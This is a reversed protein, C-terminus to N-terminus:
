IGGIDSSSPVVLSLCLSVRQGAGRMSMSLLLSSLVSGSGLAQLQTVSCRTEKIQQKMTAQAAEGPGAVDEAAKAGLM